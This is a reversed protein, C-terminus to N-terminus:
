ADSEDDVGLAEHLRAVKAELRELRTELMVMRDHDGGATPAGPAPTPALASAPPQECFCQVWRSERRGPERALEAVHPGDERSALRAVVAEVAGIDHYDHLRAARSRLEGPTQPGRLLLM